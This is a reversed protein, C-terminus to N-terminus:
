PGEWACRLGITEARANDPVDRVQGVDDALSLWSGGAVTGDALWEEVNGDLDVHGAPGVHPAIGVADRGFAGLPGRTGPRVAVNVPTGKAGARAAAWEERTPLRGGRWACYARAEALAIWRAPGDEEGPAPPAVDPLLGLRQTAAIEEWPVEARDLRVAGGPAGGATGPVAPADREECAPYPLVVTRDAGVRYPVEAVGCPREVRAVGEGPALRAWGRALSGEGHELRVAPEILRDAGVPESLWADGDWRVRDVVVEVERLAAADMADDDGARGPPGEPAPHCALLLLIRM